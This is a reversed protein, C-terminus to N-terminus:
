EGQATVPIEVREPEGDGNGNGEPAAPEPAPQQEYALDPEVEQGKIRAKSNYGVLYAWTLFTGGNTVMVPEEGTLDFRDRKAGITIEGGYEHLAGLSHLISELLDPDAVQALALALASSRESGEGAFDREIFKSRNM